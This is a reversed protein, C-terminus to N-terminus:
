VSIQAGADNMQFLAALNDRIQGQMKDIVEFFESDNM